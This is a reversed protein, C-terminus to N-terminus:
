CFPLTLNLAVKWSNELLRLKEITRRFELHGIKYWNPNFKFFGLQCIELMHRSLEWGTWRKVKLQVVFGM